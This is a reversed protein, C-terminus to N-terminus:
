DGDATAATELAELRKEAGRRNDLMVAVWKLDDTNEFLIKIIMTLPVSLLMGISGWMWGWFVLSLFVVLTSLGLTLGLLYPEIFNGIAVNVVVYGAAVLLAYGIGGQVL